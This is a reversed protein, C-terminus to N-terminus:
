GRHRGRSAEDHGPGRGHAYPAPGNTMRRAEAPPSPNGVSVRRERLEEVLTRPAEFTLRVRDEEDIHQARRQM